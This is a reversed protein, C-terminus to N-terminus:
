MGGFKVYLTREAAEAGASVVRFVDGIAFAQDRTLVVWTDVVVTLSITGINRYTGGADVAQFTVTAGTFAAPFLVSTPYAGFGSVETSNVTANAITAVKMLQAM